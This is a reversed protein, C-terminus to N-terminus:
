ESCGAGAERDIAEMADDVLKEFDVDEEFTLPSEEEDAGEQLRAFALEPPEDIVELNDEIMKVLDDDDDDDEYIVPVEEDSPQDAPAAVAEEEDEEAAEFPDLSSHAKRTTQVSVQPPCHRVMPPACPQLPSRVPQVAPRTPVPVPAPPRPTTVLPASARAMMYGAAPARQQVVVPPATPPPLLTMHAGRARKPCPPMADQPAPRKPAAQTTTFFAPAAPAAPLVTFTKPAATQMTVAPARPAAQMTNVFPESRAPVAFTKATIAPARHAPVAFANPPPQTVVVGAPAVQFRAPVPFSNHAAQFRAPAPVAPVAFIRSSAAQQTVAVAADPAAAAAASDQRKTKSDSSAPPTARPSVYMKCFVFQTDGAVAQPLVCASVEDMLWETYAGNKKHRLKRCEGIKAGTARDKVPLTSGTHWTSGPAARSGNKCTTFFFRVGTAPLPAFRRVLDDPERGYVDAAHIYPRVADHLGKGGALLRPLYYAIAEEPSPNFRFGRAFISAAAM